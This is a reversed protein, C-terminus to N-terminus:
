PVQHHELLHRVRGGFAQEVGGGVLQVPHRPVRGLQPRGGQGPVGVDDVVPQHLHPPRGRGPQQQLQDTGPHQQGAGLIRLPGQQLPQLLQLPPQSRDRRSRGGTGRSRRRWRRGGGSRRGRRHARRGRGSRRSSRCRSGWRGGGRCRGSRCRAGGRRSGRRWWGGGRGGRRAGQVRGCQAPDPFLDHGRHPSAAFAGGRHDSLRGDLVHFAVGDHQVELVRYVGGHERGGGFLQQLRDM